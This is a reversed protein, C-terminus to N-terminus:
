ASQACHLGFGDWSHGKVATPYPNQRCQTCDAHRWPASNIRPYGPGIWPARIRRANVGAEKGGGRHTGPATKENQGKRDCVCVWSRTRPDDASGAGRRYTRGRTWSSSNSFVLNCSSNSTANLRAAKGSVGDLMFRDPEKARASVRFPVPMLTSTASTSTPLGCPTPQTIRKLIWRPATVCSGPEPRLRFAFRMECVCGKPLRSRPCPRDNPAVVSM